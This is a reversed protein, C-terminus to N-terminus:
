GSLNAKVGSGSVSAFRCCLMLLPWSWMAVDFGDSGENGCEWRARAFGGEEEMDM